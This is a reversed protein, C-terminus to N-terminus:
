KRVSTTTWVAQVMHSVTQSVGDTIQLDALVCNQKLALKFPYKGIYYPFRIKNLRSKLGMKQYRAAFSM